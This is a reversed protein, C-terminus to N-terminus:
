GEEGDDVYVFVTKTTEHRGNDVVVLCIRSYGDEEALEIMQDAVDELQVELRKSANVRIDYEGFLEM